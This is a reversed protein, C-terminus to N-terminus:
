GRLNKLRTPYGADRENLWACVDLMDHTNYHPREFARSLKHDVIM